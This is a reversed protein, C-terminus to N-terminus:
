RIKRTTQACEERVTPRNYRFCIWKRSPFYYNTFSHTRGKWSGHVPASDLCMFHVRFRLQLLSIRIPRYFAFYMSRRQTRVRVGSVSRIAYIVYNTLCRLIILPLRSGLGANFHTRRAALRMHATWQHHTKSIYVIEIIFDYKIREPEAGIAITCLHAVRSLVFHVDLLHTQRFLRLLLFFINIQIVFKRRCHASQTM